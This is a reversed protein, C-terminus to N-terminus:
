HVIASTQVQFDIDPIIENDRVDFEVMKGNCTVSWKQPEKSKEFGRAPKDPPPSVQFSYEGKHDTYCDQLYWLGGGTNSLRLQVMGMQLPLTTGKEIRTVIGHVRQGRKMVIILDSAIPSVNYAFAPAFDSRTFQLDYRLPEYFDITFSGDKEAKHEDIVGSRWEIVWKNDHLGQIAGLKWTVGPLPRGAEDIVRGYVTGTTQASASAVSLLAFIGAIGCSRLRTSM